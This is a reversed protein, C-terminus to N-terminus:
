FLRGPRGRSPPPFMANILRFVEHDLAPRRNVEQWLPEFKEVDHERAAKHAAALLGEDSLLQPKVCRAGSPGHEV